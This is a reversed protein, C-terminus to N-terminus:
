AIRTWVCWYDGGSGANGSSLWAGPRGPLAMVTGESASQSGDGNLVIFAVYGIGNVNLPQFNSPTWASGVQGHLDNVANSVNNINNQLNAVDGNVSANTAFQGLDPKNLIQAVGGAANWDSNVQAAPITPKELLDNYKGSHAVAALSDVGGAVATAILKQIADSLDDYRNAVPLVTAIQLVRLVNGLLDNLMDATPTTGDIGPQCDAGWGGAGTPPVIQGPVTTPPAGVENISFGQM